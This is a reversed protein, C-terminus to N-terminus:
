RSDMNQQDLSEPNLSLLYRLVDLNGERAAVHLATDGSVDPM